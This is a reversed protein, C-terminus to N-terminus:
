AVVNKKNWEFYFFAWLEGPFHFTLDEDLLSWALLIWADLSQARLFVKQYILRLMHSLRGRKRTNAGQSECLSLFFLLVANLLM